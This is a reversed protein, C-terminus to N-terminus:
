RYRAKATLACKGVLVGRVEVGCVAALIPDILAANIAILASLELSDILQLLILFSYLIIRDISLRLYKYRLAPV